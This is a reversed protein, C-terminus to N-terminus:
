LSNSYFSGCLLLASLPIFRASYQDLKIYLTEEDWLHYGIVSLPIHINHDFVSAVYTLQHSRDMETMIAEMIQQNEDFQIPADFIWNIREYPDFWPSTVRDTLQSSPTILQGNNEPNAQEQTVMQANLDYMEGTVADYYTPGERHQSNITPVQWVAQMPHIYLLQSAEILKDKENSDYEALVHALTVHSFLPYDGHGYEVLQLGGQPTAGIVLYGLQQLSTASYIHVLWSHTGPGLTVTEWIVNNWSAFDDETALTTIWKQIHQQLLSEFDTPPSHHENENQVSNSFALTEITQQM